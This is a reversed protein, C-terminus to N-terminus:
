SSPRTSSCAVTHASWCPPPMVCQFMPRGQHAYWLGYGTELPDGFRAANYLLLGAVTAAFLAVGLCADAWRLDARRPWALVLTAACLILLLPATAWRTALAMAAGLAVLTVAWRGGTGLRAAGLLWTAFALGVLSEEQGM